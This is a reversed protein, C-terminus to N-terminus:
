TSHNKQQLLINITRGVSCHIKELFNPKLAENERINTMQLNSNFYSFHESYRIDFAYESGLHVGLISSKGFITLAQFGNVIKAFFKMTFTRSPESYAETYSVYKPGLSLCRYLKMM